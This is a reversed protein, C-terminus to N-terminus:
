GRLGLEKSVKKIQLIFSDKKREESLDKDPTTSWRYIQEISGYGRNFIKAYKMCNEQSPADSLIIKLEDDTWKNGKNSIDRKDENERQYKILLNEILHIKEEYSFDDIDSDFVEFLKEKFEKRKM